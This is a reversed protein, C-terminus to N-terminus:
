STLDGGFRLTDSPNEGFMERYEAAFRAPNGFHWKRAITAVSAKQYPDALEARVRELRVRRLAALPTTQRYYRFLSQLTRVSCGAIEALRAVSMAEDAHGSM